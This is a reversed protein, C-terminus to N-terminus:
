FMQHELNPRSMMEEVDLELKDLNIKSDNKIGSKKGIIYVRVEAGKKALYRAAVFGDGGNNGTGCFIAIKKAFVQEAVRQGANEMLMISPIAMEEIARRDMARMEKVSVRRMPKYIIAGRM